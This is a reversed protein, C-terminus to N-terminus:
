LRFSSMGLNTLDKSYGGVASPGVFDLVHSTAGCRHSSRENWVELLATTLDVCLKVVLAQSSSKNISPGTSSNKAVKQINLKEAECKNEKPSFHIEDTGTAEEV